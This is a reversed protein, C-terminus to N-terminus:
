KLDDAEAPAPRASQNSFVLEYLLHPTLNRMDDLQIEELNIGYQDELLVAWEVLDLSSIDLESIPTDADVKVDALEELKRLLDGLEPIDAM